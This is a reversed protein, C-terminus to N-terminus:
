FTSALLVSQSTYIREENCSYKGWEPSYPEHWPIRRLHWKNRDPWHWHWNRDHWNTNRDRDRDWQWRWLGVPINCWYSRISRRISNHGRIALEQGGRRRIRTPQYPWLRCILALALRVDYDCWQQFLRVIIHTSWFRNQGKVALLWAM